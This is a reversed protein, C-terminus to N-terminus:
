FPYTHHAGLPCRDLASCEERRPAPDPWLLGELAPSGPCPCEQRFILRKPVCFKGSLEFPTRLLFLTTFYKSSDLLPRVYTQAPVSQHNMIKRWCILSVKNLLVFWNRYWPAYFLSHCLLSFFRCGSQLLFPPFDCALDSFWHDIKLTFHKRLIRVWQM